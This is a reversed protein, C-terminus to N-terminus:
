ASFPTLFHGWFTVTAGGPLHLGQRGGPQWQRGIEQGCRQGSPNELLNPFVFHLWVLYQLAIRKIKNNWIYMWRIHPTASQLRSLMILGCRLSLSTFDTFDTLFCFCCLFFILSYFSCWKGWPLCSYCLSRQLDHVEYEWLASGAQNYLHTTLSTSIFLHAMMLKRFSMHCPDISLIISM